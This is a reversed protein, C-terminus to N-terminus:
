RPSSNVMQTCALSNERADRILHRQTPSHAQFLAAEEGEEEQEPLLTVGAVFLGVQRKRGIMMMMLLAVEARGSAFVCVLLMLPLQLALAM